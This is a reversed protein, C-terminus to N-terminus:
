RAVAWAGFVLSAPTRGRLGYGHHPWREFNYFRMFRQLTRHPAARGTFYVRRFAVRWHEHLITQQLREIM